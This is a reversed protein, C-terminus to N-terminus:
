QQRVRRLSDAERQSDARVLSDLARYTAAHVENYEHYRAELSEAPIQRLVGGQPLPAGRGLAPGALIEIAPRNPWTSDVHAWDSTHLLVPGATSDFELALRLRGGTRPEIASVRGVHRNQARVPM